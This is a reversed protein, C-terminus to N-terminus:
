DYQSIFHIGIAKLYDDFHEQSVLKFKGVFAEMIAAPEIKKKKWTKTNLNAVAQMSISTISSSQQIWSVKYLYEM